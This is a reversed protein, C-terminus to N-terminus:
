SGDYVSSTRYFDLWAWQFATVYPIERLVQGQLEGNIALGNSPRWTSNTQDDILEEGDGTFTLETGDSLQRLYIHVARTEPNAHVLIPFDAMQDNVVIEESVIPYPYARSEEGISVGLVFDDRPLQGRLIGEAQLVLSEPHEGVWSEWPELSFPVIQLQTGKLDGVLARGWPQTWVSETEHDFWTM